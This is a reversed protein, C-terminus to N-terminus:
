VVSKRDESDIRLLTLATMVLVIAILLPNLIGRHFRKKLALGLLYGLFSILVGFTASSLILENM